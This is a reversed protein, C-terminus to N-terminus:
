FRYLLRFGLNLQSATIKGNYRYSSIPKINFFGINRIKQRNVLSSYETNSYRIGYGIAIDFYFEKVIRFAIGFQLTGTKVPSNISAKNYTYVSDDQSTEYYRDTKDVDFSRKATTFQLGFYPRIVKKGLYFRFEAKYKFYKKNIATSDYNKNKGTQLGIENFLSFQPTFFFEIGPQLSIPIGPLPVNGLSLSAAWQQKEKGKKQQANGILSFLALLVSLLFIRLM